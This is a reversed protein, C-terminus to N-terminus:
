CISDKNSGGQAAKGSTENETSPFHKMGLASPVFGCLTAESSQVRQNPSGGSFEGSGRLFM